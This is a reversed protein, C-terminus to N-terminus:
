MYTAKAPISPMTYDLNGEFEYFDMQRQKRLAPTEPTYRYLNEKGVTSVVLM